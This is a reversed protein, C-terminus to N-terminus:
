LPELMNNFFFRYNRVERAWMRHNQLGKKVDEHQDKQQEM